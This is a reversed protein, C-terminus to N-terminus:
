LSFADIRGKQPVMFVFPLRSNLALEKMKEWQGIMQKAEQWKNLKKGIMFFAGVNYKKLINLEARHKRINKDRSVLLMENKGIHELWVDDIVDTKFIDKLHKVENENEELCAMAKAIRWSINNDFFFKM